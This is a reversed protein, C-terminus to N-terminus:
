RSPIPPFWEAALGAVADLAGAEEFLHGARAIVRLAKECPLARMAEENLRILLTDEGGVIRLTAARVQRLVKGALDPHGGRSVVARIKEGLQAAGVVAAAM